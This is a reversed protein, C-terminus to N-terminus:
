MVIQKMHNKSPFHLNNQLIKVELHRFVNCGAVSNKDSVDKRGEGERDSLVLIRSKSGGTRM